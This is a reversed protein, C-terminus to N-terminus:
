VTDYDMIIIDLMSFLVCDNESNCSIHHELQGWDSVQVDKYDGAIVNNLYIRHQTGWFAFKIEYLDDGCFFQISKLKHEIHFSLDSKLHTFKYSSYLFFFERTKSYAFLENNLDYFLIKNGFFRCKLIASFCLVDDKYVHYKGYDNLIRYEIM